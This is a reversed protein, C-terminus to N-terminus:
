PLLRLRLRLLVEKIGGDSYCDLILQTIPMSCLPCKTPYREKEYDYDEPFFGWIERCNSCRYENDNLVKM